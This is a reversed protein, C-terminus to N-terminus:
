ELQPKEPFDCYVALEYVAPVAGMPAGLEPWIAGAAHFLSIMLESNTVQHDPHLDAITPCFVRAPKVKRLHHVFSNCLGTYGEIAPEGAAAKRRGSLTYLGGDPFGGWAVHDRPIGIMEFSKYTEGQRIRSISDRQE